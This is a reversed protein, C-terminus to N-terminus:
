ALLNAYPAGKQMPFLAIKSFRCFHRQARNLSYFRDWIMKACGSAGRVDHELSELIMANREAIFIM